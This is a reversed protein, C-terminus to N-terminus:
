SKRGKKASRGLRAACAARIWEGLTQDAASAAAQYATREDDTLRITIKHDAPVSARPLRGSGLPNTKTKEAVQTRM